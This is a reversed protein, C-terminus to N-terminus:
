VISAKLLRISAGLVSSRPALGRRDAPPGEKPDDPLFPTNVAKLRANGGSLEEYLQVCSELVDEMNYTMLVVPGSPGRFSSVEHRCGLYL